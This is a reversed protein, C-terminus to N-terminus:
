SLVVLIENQSLKKNEINWNEFVNIRYEQKWTQPQGGETGPKWYGRVPVDLVQCNLELNIVAM